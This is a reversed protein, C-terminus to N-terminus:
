NVTIDGSTTKIKLILDSKRDSKNINTDGSTTSSEVYCNSINNNISVDGSATEVSSNDKIDLNKLIIDGSTTKVSVRENVRNITVDGSTTVASIKNTKSVKIDGSTTTITIDNADLLEVDGSTTIMSIDNVININSYIDGSVTEIDFKGDYDSPIYLVVRRNIFCFGFCSMDYNREDLIIENDNKIIKPNKESNSYYEVRIDNDSEKIEIDANYLYLKINDISNSEIDTSEILKIDSVNFNLNFNFNNNLLFIFGGTLLIVMCSLIVILVIIVSKNKMM